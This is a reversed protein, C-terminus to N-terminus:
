GRLSNNSLILTNDGVSYYNQGNFTIIEGLEVSTCGLFNTDLINSSGSVFNAGNTYDIIGLNCNYSLLATHQYATSAGVDACDYMTIQQLSIPTYAPRTIHSSGYYSNTGIIEYVLAFHGNVTSDANSNFNLFVVSDNIAATINYTTYSHDIFATASSPIEEGAKYVYFYTGLNVNNESSTDILLCIKSDITITLQSGTTVEVAETSIKSSNFADFFDKLDFAIELAGDGTNYPNHFQQKKVIAM